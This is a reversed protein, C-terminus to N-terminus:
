SIWCLEEQRGVERIEETHCPDSNEVEAEQAARLAPCGPETPSPETEM